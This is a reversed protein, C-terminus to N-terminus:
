AAPKSSKLKAVSSRVLAEIQTALEKMETDVAAPDYQGKLKEGITSVLGQLQEKVSATGGAPALAEQVLQKLLTQTLPTRSM